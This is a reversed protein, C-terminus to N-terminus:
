QGFVVRRGDFRVTQDGVKVRAQLGEGEATVAPAPGRQLTIVVFFADGGEAFIAKSSNRVVGSKVLQRYEVREALQVKPTAPTIFTAQLTADGRSLTFINGASKFTPDNDIARKELKLLQGIKYKFQKGDFLIDEKV